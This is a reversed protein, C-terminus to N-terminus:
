QFYALFTKVLGVVGIGIAGNKFINSIARNHGAVETPEGEAVSKMLYHYGIMVTAAGPILGLLWSTADNVLDMFGTVLSPTDAYATSAFFMFPLSYYIIMMIKGVLKILKNKM